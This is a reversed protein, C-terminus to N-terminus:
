LIRSLVFRDFEGAQEKTLRALADEITIASDLKPMWKKANIWAQWTTTAMTARKMNEKLLVINLGHIEGAVPQVEATVPAQEQGEQATMPPNEQKETAPEAAPVEVYEGEIDGPNLGRKSASEAIAEDMVMVNQPMDGPRLRNLAQSESRIFVMNYKDNGMDIGYPEKTKPWEGYGVVEAGTVPDKLKTISVLKNQKVEGFRKIQEAETMIRPSDDIYSFSGRRSAMLRKAQIGIATTWTENPKGKNFPILYVHKMLPNLQQTACLLAARSKESAPAEPWLAELIELAMSKNLSVVGEYKSIAVVSGCQQVMEESRYREIQRSPPLYIKGVGEHKNVDHRHCAIYTKGTGSEQWFTCFEGCEACKFGHRRKDAQQSTLGEPLYFRNAM